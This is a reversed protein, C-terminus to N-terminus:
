DGFCLPTLIRLHIVPIMITVTPVAIVAEAQEFLEDASTVPLLEVAIGSKYL